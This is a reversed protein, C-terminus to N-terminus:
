MLGTKNETHLSLSEKRNVGIEYGSIIRNKM